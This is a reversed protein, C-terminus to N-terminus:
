HRGAGRGVEIRGRGLKSRAPRVPRRNTQGIGVFNRVKKRFFGANIFSSPAFYWEVRRRFQGLGLAAPRSQGVNRDSRRRIATPRNPPNAVDSVFLNNYDPRAM